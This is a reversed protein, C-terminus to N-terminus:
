PNYKPNRLWALSAERKQIMIVAYRHASAAIDDTFKFYAEDEMPTGLTGDKDILPLKAILAQLAAAAYTDYAQENVIM